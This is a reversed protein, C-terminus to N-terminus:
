QEFQKFGHLERIEMLELEQMDKAQEQNIWSAWQDCGNIEVADKLKYRTGMEYSHEIEMCVYVKSTASRYYGGLILVEM